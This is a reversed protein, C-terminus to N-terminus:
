SPPELGGERMLNTKTVFESLQRAYTKSISVTLNLNGSADYESNLVKGKEYAFAAADYREPPLCLQLIATERRIKSILASKLKDLGEGTRASIFIGDPHLAKLKAKIVPNKQIDTKNFVIISEKEKAGLEELVALTTKLHEEAYQSNIDLVHILLDALVAEELTSKFAEVLTHPLKRIFGVTDTLLMQQKNPLTIQRTTPDLTAFLKDEVFVESGTLANLLSSKGANTYGVIAAHPIANKERQRRQINRHKKIEKLRKKLCSIKQLIIQKDVEIQMEGADRTGEAGGRQRSLHTWARKLRPLSYQLRALDIQIVAERTSARGAFIDLIVEQRDIARIGTLKEWNRQQSPSLDHDFIICDAELKKAIDAIEKAKGSGILYQPAPHRLNITIDGAVSLGMTKVLDRLELLHEGVETVPTLADHIGIILARKCIRGNDKETDIM